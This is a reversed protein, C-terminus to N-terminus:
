SPSNHDFEIFHFLGFMGVLGFQVGSHNYPHRHTRWSYLRMPTEHTYHRLGPVM